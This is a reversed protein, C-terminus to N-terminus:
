RIALAALDSRLGAPYTLNPVVRLIRGDARVLVATPGGASVGAVARRASGDPDTLSYLRGEVLGRPLTTPEESETIWVITLQTEDAAAVLQNRVTACNACVTPSILLVAPRFERLPTRQRDAGALSLPPVLGGAMGVTVSPSALPERRPPRNPKPLVVVMLSGIAAVLFLILALLPGSLETRGWGRERSPVPERPQTAAFEAQVRAVEDALDRLDRPVVITGWEPPLGRLEGDHGPEDSAPEDSAPEDSAPEDSDPRRSM